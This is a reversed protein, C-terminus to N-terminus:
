GFLGKDMLFFMENINPDWIILVMIPKTDDIKIVRMKPDSPRPSLVINVLAIAKETRNKPKLM